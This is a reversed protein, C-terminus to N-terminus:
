KAFDSMSEKKVSDPLAGSVRRTIMEVVSLHPLFASAARSPGCIGTVRILMFSRSSEGTLQSMAQGCFVRWTSRGWSSRGCWSSATLATKRPQPSQVVPVVVSRPLSM